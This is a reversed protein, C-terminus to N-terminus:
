FHTMNLLVKALSLDLSATNDQQTYSLVCQQAANANFSSLITLLASYRLCCLQSAYAASLPMLLTSFRLCRQAAYPASLLTLLCRQAAYPASLLTLLTTLSLLLRM